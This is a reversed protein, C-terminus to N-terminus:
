KGKNKRKILLCVIDFVAGVSILTIYIPWVLLTIDFVIKDLTGGLAAPDDFRNDPDSQVLFLGTAIIGMLYIWCILATIM